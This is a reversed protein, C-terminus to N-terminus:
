VENASGYDAISVFLLEIMLIPMTATAAPPQLWALEGGTRSLPSRQIKDRYTVNNNKSHSTTTHCSTTPFFRKPSFPLV